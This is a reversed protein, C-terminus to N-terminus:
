GKKDKKLPSFTGFGSAPAGMEFRQNIKPGGLAARGLTGFKTGPKAGKSVVEADDDDFVRKALGGGLLKRKRRRTDLNETADDVVSTDPLSKPNLQQPAAASNSPDDEEDVQELVPVKKSRRAPVVESNGKSAKAQRLADSKMATQQAKCCKAKGPLSNPAAASDQHYTAAVPSPNATESDQVPSDPAISATRNLFPTISFTSKDGPMTSGRKVKKTVRTDGPTGIMTDDDMRSVNRKRSDRPMEDLGISATPRSARARSAAQAVQLQSQSEQLQDRSAKLKGKLSDMRSDLTEQQAEWDASAQFAEREVKQREKREKALEARLSELQVASKADEVQLKGEKAIARQTTRKEMELEVQLTSLQRQLSLKEAVAAEYSKTQSRLHDIEPKLTSLERALALKETLLKTSDM